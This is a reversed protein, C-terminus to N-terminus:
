RVPEFKKLLVEKLKRTKASRAVEYIEGNDYETIELKMGKPVSLVELVGSRVQVKITKMSSVTGKKFVGM